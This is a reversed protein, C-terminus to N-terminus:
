VDCDMIIKSFSIHRWPYLKSNLFISHLLKSSHHMRPVAEFFPAEFSAAEFSAAEFSHADVSAADFSVAEFSSDEFLAAEFSSAELSPTEVSAAEFFAVELPHMRPRLLKSTQKQKAASM